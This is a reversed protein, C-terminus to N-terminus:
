LFLFLSFLIIGVDEIEPEDKLIPLAGREGKNQNQDNGTEQGTKNSRSPAPKTTQKGTKENNNPDSAESSSGCGM